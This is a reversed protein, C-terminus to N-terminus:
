QKLDVGDTEIALILVGTLFKDAHKRLGETIKKVHARSILSNGRQEGELTYDDRTM